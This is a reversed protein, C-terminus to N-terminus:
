IPFSFPTFTVLNFTKPVFQRLSKLTSFFSVVKKDWHASEGSEETTKTISKGKTQGGGKEQVPGSVEDGQNTERPGRLGQGARSTESRGDEQVDLLQGQLVLAQM